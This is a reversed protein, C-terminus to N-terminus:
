GNMRRAIENPSLQSLSISRPALPPIGGRTEPVDLTAQEALKRDRSNHHTGPVPLRLPTGDAAREAQARSRGM